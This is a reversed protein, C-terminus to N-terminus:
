QRGCRHGHRGHRGTEPRDGSTLRKGPEADLKKRYIFQGVGPNQWVYVIEKGDPSFSPQGEWGHDATLPIMRQVAPTPPRTCWIAGGAIAAISVAAAAAALPRITRTKPKTEPVRAHAAWWADLEAKYAFVLGTGGPGLRRVPLGDTQEWHQV